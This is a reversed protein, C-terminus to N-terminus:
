IFTSGTRFVWIKSFTYNFIMGFIAGVALPLIPFEDMWNYYRLLTVFVLLNLLGGGIQVMLYQIYEKKSANRVKNMRFTFCRNLFWTVATALPFSIGRAAYVNMSQWSTLLSLLGGDVFFGVGGILGFKFVSEPIWRKLKAGQKTSTAM